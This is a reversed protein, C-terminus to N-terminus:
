IASKEELKAKMDPVSGKLNEDLGAYEQDLKGKVPKSLLSPLREPMCNGFEWKIKMNRALLSIYTRLGKVKREPDVENNLIFASEVVFRRWFQKAREGATWGSGKDHNAQTAM